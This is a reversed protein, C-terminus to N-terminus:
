RVPKKLDTSYTKNELREKIIKNEYKSFLNKLM